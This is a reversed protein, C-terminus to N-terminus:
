GDVVESEVPKPGAKPSIIIITKEGGGADKDMGYLRAKGTVATSAAAPQNVKMALLRAEEYERQAQEVSYGIKEALKAKIQSIAKIVKINKYLKHGLTSAYSQSYGVALLPTTMDKFANNAYEQAISEAKEQTIM